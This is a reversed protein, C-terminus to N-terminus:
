FKPSWRKGCDPCYKGATDDYTNEHQCQRTAVSDESIQTVESDSQPNHLTSVSDLVSQTRKALASIEAALVDTWPDLFYDICGDYFEKLACNEALLAKNRDMSRGIDHKLDSVDATLTEIMGLHDDAINQLKGCKECVRVSLVGRQCGCYNASENM